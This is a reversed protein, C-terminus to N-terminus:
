EKQNEKNMSIVTREGEGAIGSQDPNDLYPFGARRMRFTREVFTAPRDEIIDMLIQEDGRQYLIAHEPFIIKKLGGKEIYIFERGEKKEKEPDKLIRGGKIFIKAIEDETFSAKAGRTYLTRKEMDFSKYVAIRKRKLSLGTGTKGPRGASSM